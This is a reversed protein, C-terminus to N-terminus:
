PRRSTFPTPIHAPGGAALPADAARGLCWGGWAHSSPTTARSVQGLWGPVRVADRRGRGWSRALELGSWGWRTAKRGVRRTLFRLAVGLM